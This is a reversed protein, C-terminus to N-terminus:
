LLGAAADTVGGVLALNKTGVVAAAGDSCIGLWDASVRPSDKWWSSRANEGGTPVDNEEGGAPVDNEDGGGVACNEAGTDDEM